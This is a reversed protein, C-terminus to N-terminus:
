EGKLIEKIEKIMHTEMEEKPVVEPATMLQVGYRIGSKYTETIVNLLEAENYVYYKM